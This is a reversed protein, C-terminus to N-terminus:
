NSLVVFTNKYRKCCLFNVSFKYEFINVLNNNNFPTFLVSQCFFFVNNKSASNCTSFTFAPQEEAIQKKLQIKFFFYLVFSTGLLFFMGILLVATEPSNMGVGKIV